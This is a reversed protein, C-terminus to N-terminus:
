QASWPWHSRPLSLALVVPITLAENKRTYFNVASSIQVLTRRRQKVYGLKDAVQSNLERNTAGNTAHTTAHTM